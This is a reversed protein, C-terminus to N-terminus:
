LRGYKLNTKPLIIKNPSTTSDIINGFNEIIIYIMKGIIKARIFM